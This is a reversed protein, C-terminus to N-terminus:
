CRRSPRWGRHQDHHWGAVVLALGAAAALAVRGVPGIWNNEFAYRIFFAAAFVILVVAVWGLARRGIFSEWDFSSAAPLPVLEVPSAAM